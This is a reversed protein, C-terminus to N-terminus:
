YMKDSNNKSLVDTCLDYELQIKYQSLSKPEIELDNKHYILGLKGMM